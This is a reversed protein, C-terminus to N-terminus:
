FDLIYVIHYCKKNVLLLFHSCCRRSKMFNLCRRRDIFIKIWSCGWSLEFFDPPHNLSSLNSCLMRLAELYIFFSLSLSLSTYRTFAQKMISGNTYCPFVQLPLSSTSSFLHDRPHDLTSIDYIRRGSLHVQDLCSSFFLVSLLVDCYGHIIKNAM